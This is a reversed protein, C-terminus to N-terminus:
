GGITVTFGADTFTARLEQMREPGPPLIYSIEYDMELREYKSTGLRHYPLLDVPVDPRHRKLFDILSRINDESDNYGPIVPFRVRMDKGTEALRRFNELISENSVGTCREHEARDMVKLDYLYLDIVSLSAEFIKWSVAGCTEVATHIGHGRCLRATQVVFASQDLPEGGSFTVGGGSKRYFLEDKLVEALVEEPTMDRGILVLAEAYCADACSGCSTCKDRDIKIGEETLTLAGPDCVEICRACGLCKDKWYVLQFRPRQSEPNCCWLCRLSCGKLFVLTRIGPGDNIAYREIEFVRGTLAERKVTTEDM